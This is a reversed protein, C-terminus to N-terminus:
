SPLATPPPRSALCLAILLGGTVTAFRPRKPRTQRVAVRPRCWSAMREALRVITEFGPYHGALLAALLLLLPLLAIGIELM